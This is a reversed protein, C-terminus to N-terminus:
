GARQGSFRGGQLAGALQLGYGVLALFIGISVFRLKEAFGTSTPRNV